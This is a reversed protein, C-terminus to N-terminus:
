AVNISTIETATEGKLVTVGYRTTIFIGMSDREEM